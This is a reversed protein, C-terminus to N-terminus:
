KLFITISSFYISRNIYKRFFGSNILFCTLSQELVNSPILDLVEDASSALEIRM